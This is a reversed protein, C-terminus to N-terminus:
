SKELKISPAAFRRPDSEKRISEILSDVIDRSFHKMKYKVLSETMATIVDMVKQQQSDDEIKIKILPELVTDRSLELGFGKLATSSSLETGSGSRLKLDKAWTPISEGIKHRQFDPPLSKIKEKIKAETEVNRQSFKKAEPDEYTVQFIMTPANASNM